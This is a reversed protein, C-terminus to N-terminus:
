PTTGIWTNLLSSRTRKRKSKDPHAPQIVGCRHAYGFRPGWQNPREPEGVLGELVLDSAQFVVGRTAMEEIAKDCQAAWDPDTHEDAEALGALKLQEGAVPDIVGM